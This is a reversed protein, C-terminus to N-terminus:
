ILFISLLAQLVSGSLRARLETPEATVAISPIQLRAVVFAPAERGASPSRALSVSALVLKGASMQCCSPTAHPGRISFPPMHTGMMACQLTHKEATRMHSGCSALAAAPMVLLLMALASTVFKFPWMM